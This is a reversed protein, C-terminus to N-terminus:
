QKNYVATGTIKKGQADTGTATVTRSKGDASVVIRGALVVKSGKKSAFQLTHDDLRKYSRADEGPNGTSPYDKGDFKGTWESHTPTGDPATGDITVKVNDGAADYTVTNNMPVGGGIKSNAENLKWTGMQADSGAFCMSAAM